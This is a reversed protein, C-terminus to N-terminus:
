WSPFATVRVVSSCISKSAMWDPILSFTGFLQMYRDHATVPKMPSDRFTRRTNVNCDSKGLRPM